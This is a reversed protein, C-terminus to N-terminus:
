LWYTTFRVVTDLGEDAFDDDVCLSQVMLMHNTCEKIAMEDIPLLM